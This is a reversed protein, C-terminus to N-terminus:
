KSFTVIKKTYDVPGVKFGANVWAHSQSRNNTTDSWWGVEPRTASRPLSVGIIKEIEDFTLVIINGIQRAFFHGLPDYIGM